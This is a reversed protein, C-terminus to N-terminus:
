YRSPITLLALRRREIEVEIECNATVLNDRDQNISKLRKRNFDHTRQLDDASWHERPNYPREPQPLPTTAGPVPSGFAAFGGFM